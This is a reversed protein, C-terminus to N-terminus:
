EAGAAEAAPVRAPAGVRVQVERWASEIWRSVEAFRTAEVFGITLHAPVTQLRQWGEERPGRGFGFVTMGGDGFHWYEDVAESYEHLALFLVRGLKPDGFYVWEPAPLKGNWKRSRPCCASDFRKGSSDVWFDTEEFEGGPTGEYLIWYPEPGKKFLTMRAYRPYVDWLLGWEGDVTESLLRVRLPGEYLIRGPKKGAPRGPHFNPPAINPIGRYEGRPGGDPHYGIWDNGDPDILSAFGGCGHHYYYTAAPTDIRWAPFGEYEGVDEIRVLPETEQVGIPPAAQRLYLRYRRTAQAPTRGELLFVLTGGARGAAYPEGDRDFQFPVAEDVTRGGADVEVLRLSGVADGARGLGGLLEQHDIQVEVIKDMREFGGAGVDIPVFFGGAHEPAQASLAPCLIAVGLLRLGLRRPRSRCCPWPMNAEM